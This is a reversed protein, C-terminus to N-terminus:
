ASRRRQRFGLTLLALGASVIILPLERSSATTVALGTQPALQAAPLNIFVASAFETLVQTTVPNVKPVFGTPASAPDEHVTVTAGDPLSLVCLGNSGTTCSALKAGGSDTVTFAVGSGPTCDAPIDGKALSIQGPDTKCNYSAIRFDINAAATQSALAAFLIAVLGVILLLRGPRVVRRM